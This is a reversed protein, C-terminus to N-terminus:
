LLISIAVPTSIANTSATMTPLVAWTSCPRPQSGLRRGREGQRQPRVAPEAEERGILADRELEARQEDDDTGVDHRALELDTRRACRARAAARCYGRSPRRASWGHDGRRPDRPGDSRECRCARPFSAAMDLCACRFRISTFFEARLGRRPARPGSRGRASPRGRCRRSGSASRVRSGRRRAAVAVALLLLGVEHDGAGPSTRSSPSTISSRATPGRGRRARPRARTRRRAPRSPADDGDAARLRLAAVALLGLHGPRVSALCRGAAGVRERAAAYRRIRESRIRAEAARMRQEAMRARHAARRLSPVALAALAAGAVLTAFGPIQRGAPGGVAGLAADRLAVAGIAADVGSISPRLGPIRRAGEYVSEVAGLVLLVTM